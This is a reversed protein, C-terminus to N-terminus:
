FKGPALSNFFIWCFIKGQPQRLSHVVAVDLTKTTRNKNLESLLSENYKNAKMVAMKTWDTYLVTDEFVTIAVPHPVNLRGRAIVRRFFFITFLDHFAILDM